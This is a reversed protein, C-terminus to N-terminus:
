EIIVVQNHSQFPVSFQLILDSVAERILDLDNHILSAYERENKQRLRLKATNRRSVLSRRQVISLNDCKALLKDVQKIRLHPDVREGQLNNIDCVSDDLGYSEENSEEAVPQPDEHLLRGDEMVDEGFKKTIMRMFNANHWPSAAQNDPAASWSGLSIPARLDEPSDLITGVTWYTKRDSAGLGSRYKHSNRSKTGGLHLPIKSNYFSSRPHLVAQQPKPQPLVSVSLNQRLLTQDLQPGLLAPKHHAIPVIPPPLTM